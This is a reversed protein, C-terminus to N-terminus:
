ADDGPRRIGTDVIITGDYDHEIKDKWRESRRNKLWFICSGTDPPAKKKYKKSGKVLGDADYEIYEEEWSFGMARARLATEVHATDYEDRGDRVAQAFDEYDHIWKSITDPTVGFFVALELNLAGTSSVARYALEPSSVPDYVQNPQSKETTM